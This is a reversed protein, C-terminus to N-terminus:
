LHLIQKQLLVFSHPQLSVEVRGTSPIEDPVNSGPGNWVTDASDLRKHWIGVPLDLSPAAPADGFHFIALIAETGKWRHLALTGAAEVCQASLNKKSLNRLAPLDRRLRILDRHLKLLLGHTEEQRLNRNPRAQAFTTESQPDPPERNWAFAAFEERRGKRVAEVLDPDEHSIFYPFPATDGYEEGMFLLPPFPSLLLVGAALKQQEFSIMTSLRDGVMRNGIQDHNQAFVVLQKAPINRSSNGHRRERFASYQGSYVYGETMAKALDGLAGFDIYYGEQEGTLLCHLAHHFDDNWQSDLEFGGLGRPRIIRTDNLASEAILHLNRNLNRREEKALLAMKELFPKASFDYIAHVADLRLADIHFERFWDRVNTLFYTRVADSGPGDFNVAYGWPTQYTDTFYPGYDWLYNGEPGFHNYVVDLVVALGKEHCANVLRKLGLPGGYSDQVAFPYVGDYGWNRDGPFQAVPMLEVATIGLDVLDDLHPIIAEFTGAETFTGVHLEYFIYDALPIGSWGNDTWDFDPPVIQSPGHVGEPQYRSVPDPRETEDNLLYRYQADEAVDEAIVTFYGGAEEEMALTREDPPLIRVSVREQKPAWVRFRCRGSGLWRAGIEHHLDM